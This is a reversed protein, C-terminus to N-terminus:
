VLVNIRDGSASGAAAAAPAALVGLALLHRVRAAQLKLRM